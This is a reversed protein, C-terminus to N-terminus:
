QQNRGSFMKGVDHLLKKYEQSFMGEIGEVVLGSIADGADEDLVFVVSDTSGIIAVWSKHM